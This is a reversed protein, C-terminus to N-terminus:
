RVLKRGGINVYYVAADQACILVCASFIEAGELFVIDSLVGNLLSDLIPVGHFVTPFRLHKLM